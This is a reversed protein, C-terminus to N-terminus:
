RRRLPPESVLHLPVRLSKGSQYTEAIAYRSWQSFPKSPEIQIQRVTNSDPIVHSM